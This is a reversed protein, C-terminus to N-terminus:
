ISHIGRVLQGRYHITKACYNFGISCNVLPYSTNSFPDHCDICKYCQLGTTQKLVFYILFIVIILIKNM